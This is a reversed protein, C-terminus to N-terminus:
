KQCYVKSYNGYNLHSRSLMQQIMRLMTFMRVHKRFRRTFMTCLHRMLVSTIFDSENDKSTDKWLM